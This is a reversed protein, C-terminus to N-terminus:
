VHARGIELGNDIISLQNPKALPTFDLYQYREEDAGVAKVWVLDQSGNGNLDAFRIQTSASDGVSWRTTSGPHCRRDSYRWATSIHPM